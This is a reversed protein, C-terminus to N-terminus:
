VTPQYGNATNGEQWFVPYKVQWNMFEIPSRAHKSTNCQGCAAVINSRYNTGGKALPVFHDAHYATLRVDCYFCSGNQKALITELDKATHSGEAQVERSRRASCKIRNIRQMREPNKLEWKRVADRAAKPNKKRRAKSRDKEYDTGCAWAKRRVAQCPVCNGPKGSAKPYRLTSGCEKCPNGQVHM